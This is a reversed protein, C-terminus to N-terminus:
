IHSGASGPVSFFNIFVLLGAIYSFDVAMKLAIMEIPISEEWWGGRKGEMALCYRPLYNHLITLGYIHLIHGDRKPGRPNLIASKSNCLNQKQVQPLCLTLSISLDLM